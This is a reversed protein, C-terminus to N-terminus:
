SPPPAYALGVTEGSALVHGKMAGTLAAYSETAGAALTMDLAFVQL